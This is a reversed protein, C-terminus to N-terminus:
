TWLKFPDEETRGYKLLYKIKIKKKETKIEEM